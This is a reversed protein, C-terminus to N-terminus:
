SQQRSGHTEWLARLLRPGFDQKRAFPVDGSRAEAPPDEVSVLVIALDPHSAKLRRVTEVGGLGPMRVDVLVLEPRAADVLELAEEGSAPEGASEFGPTADVVARAVSRFVEQDDVTMVRPMLCSPDLAPVGRAIPRAPTLRPTSVGPVRLHAGKRPPAPDAV